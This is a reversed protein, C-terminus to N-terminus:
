INCFYKVKCQKRGALERTGFLFHPRRNQELSIKLGLAFKDIRNSDHNRLPVNAAYFMEMRCWARNVYAYKIEDWTKTKDSGGNWSIAKYQKILGKNHNVLEWKEYDEDHVPTLICDITQVIQDLQNLIVDAPNGDQNICCYDLWIYCNTMKPAQFNKILQIAQICLKFKDNNKNDPHKIGRYEPNLKDKSGFYECGALWNHSILIYFSENPNTDEINTLKSEDITVLQEIHDYNKSSFRPFQGYYQFEEFLMVRIPPLNNTTPPSENITFTDNNNITSTDNDNITSIDNDNNNIISTDNNNITSIDNNNIASTDNKNTTSTNDNNNISSVMCGM